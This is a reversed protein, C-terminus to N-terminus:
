GAVAWWNLCTGLAGSITCQKCHFAALGKTKQKSFVRSQRVSKIANHCNASLGPDVTPWPSDDLILRMDWKRVPTVQVACGNFTLLFLKGSMHKLQVLFITCAASGLASSLVFVSYLRICGTFQAHHAPVVGNILCCAAKITHWMWVAPIGCVVSVRWCHCFAIKLWCCGFTAWCVFCQIIGSQIYDQSVLNRVATTVWWCTTQMCCITIGHNCFGTWTTRHKTVWIGTSIPTTTMLWWLELNRKTMEQWLRMKHCNPHRCWLMCLTVHFKICCCSMHDHTDVCWLNAKVSINMLWFTALAKTRADRTLDFQMWM